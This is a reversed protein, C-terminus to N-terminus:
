SIWMGNKTISWEKGNYKATVQDSGIAGTGGRWKEIGCTIKKDKEDYVPNKIKILIGNEFYLNEKDILGEEALEDFTGEKVEVGYRDKISMLLKEKELDSLNTIEETDIAIIEIDSNLGPDEKYIDDILSLYGDVLLTEMVKIRYASIQAPYSEMVLGNYSIEVIDGEKIDKLTIEKGDKDYILAQRTGVSIRDSSKYESSNKDPSVLLEPDTQLVTAQFDAEFLKKLYDMDITSSVSKYLNKNYQITNESIVFFKDTEKDKDLFTISYSWGDTVESSKDRTFEINKIDNYLEKTKEEDLVASNATAKDDVKISDFALEMTGFSFGTKVCGAGLGCIIFLGIIFCSLKKM